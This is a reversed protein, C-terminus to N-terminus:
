QKTVDTQGCDVGLGDLEEILLGYSEYLIGRWGAARAGAVNEIRDDILVAEHPEVGLRQVCREFLDGQPKILGEECSFVKVEFLDSRHALFHEIVPLETNSLVAIKYRQGLSQALDYMAEKPQIINRFAETWLSKQEPMPRNLQDCVQDWFVKETIVGRHFAPLYSDFARQCDQAEVGLKAACYRVLEGAPDDILVGGWDFIMAKFIPKM